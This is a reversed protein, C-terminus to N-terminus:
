ATGDEKGQDEDEVDSSYFNSIPREQINVVSVSTSPKKRSNRLKERLLSSVIRRFIAEKKDLKNADLAPCQGQLHGEKGCKCCVNDGPLATGPKLPYPVYGSIKGTYSLVAKRWAARGEKNNRFTLHASGNVPGSDNYPCSNALKPQFIPAPAPLGSPIKPQRNLRELLMDHQDLRNRLRATEQIEEVQEASIDLIAVVMQLLKKGARKTEVINRISPPLARLLVDCKVEEDAKNGVAGASAFMDRAWKHIALIPVEVQAGNKVETFIVEEAMDHLNPIKAALDNFEAWAPRSPVLPGLGSGPYEALFATKIEAWTRNAVMNYWAEAAGFLYTAFREKRAEDAEGISSRIFARMMLDANVSGDGSFNPVEILQQMKSPGHPNAPATRSSAQTESTTIPQGTPNPLSHPAALQTQSTTSTSRSTTATSPVLLFSSGSLSGSTDMSTSAFASTLEPLDLGSHLQM